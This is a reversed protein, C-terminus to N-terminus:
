LSPTKEDFGHAADAGSRLFEDFADAPMAPALLFGQAQDCGLGKLLEFSESTTVGEAVVSLGLGHAMATIGQVLRVSVPNDELDRVLSRDLKLVSLPLTVLCRMASFGAGFDDLAFHVGIRRLEHITEESPGSADVVLRETLELELSHPALGSERLADTVHNAFRADKLQIASVNVSIAFPITPDTAWRAADRCARRLVTAGLPIILESDESLPIFESPSVLGLTPSTWRALAEAGICRSDRLSVRPQYWIRIEGREIARPLERLLQQRRLDAATLGNRHRQPKVRAEPRTTARRTRRNAAGARRFRSPNGAADAALEVRNRGADKADYLAADARELLSAPLEGEAYEAAGASLTVRLHEIRPIPITAEVAQRIADAREAAVGLDSSPLIVLIEEGGYRCAIDRKRLQERVLRGTTRLVEDGALHGFRDNVEKFHDLDLLLLSLRTGRQSALLIEAALADLGYRRSRLGTLADTASIEELKRNQDQLQELAHGLEATRAEVKRELSHNLNRVQEISLSNQIAVAGQNALVKLLRRDDGSYPRADRRPGLHLFGVLRQQTWFPILLSGDDLEWPESSSDLLEAWERAHEVSVEGAVPVFPDEKSTRTVLALSAPQLADRVSSAIEDAVVELQAVSALRASAAEVTRTLDYASRFFVRDVLQQARDRLPLLALAVVVPAFGALQEARASEFLRDFLAASAAYSGTVLATLVGYVLSRRILLDVGLLNHRVVAYGLALPFLFATYAIANQPARGGGLASALSLLAPLTLALATGLALLKIRQRAEFSRTRLFRAGISVVLGAAGLAGLLNAVLHWRVYSAPNSLGIQYAIAVLLALGGAIGVAAGRCSDRVAREPFGLAMAVFGPLLLVEALSHLRFLRYPGYLDMASLGWIASILLLPFTANALPHSGRLFRIALAVGGMALGNFLYAGFLLAYDSREFRQVPVDIEFEADGRRLRYRVNTGEALEAVFADLEAGSRIARENAVILQSQYIDRSSTAPWHALGASAVVGNDLVLFGPFSRGLWRLSSETALAATAALFLAAVWLVPDRFPNRNM